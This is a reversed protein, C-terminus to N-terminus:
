EPTIETVMTETGTDEYEFVPQDPSLRIIIFALLITIAILLIILLAFQYNKM